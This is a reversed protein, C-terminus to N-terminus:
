QYQPAIDIISPTPDFLIKHRWRIDHIALRHKPNDIHVPLELIQKRIHESYCQARLHNQLDSGSLFYEKYRHCYTELNDHDTNKQICSLGKKFNKTLDLHHSSNGNM